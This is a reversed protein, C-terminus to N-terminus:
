KFKEITGSIIKASMEWSFRKVNNLGRNMLDTRMAEDNMVLQIKNSLDQIDFPDCYVASTRFVEPLSTVNSVIVPCGCAQAELPPIGFGEFFSPYVFLSAENYLEVLRDDSVYGTFKINEPLEDIELASFVKNKQGVIILRYDLTAFISILSVLNKRPEISGVALVYNDKQVNRNVFVDSSSGYVTTIKDSRIGYTKSIDEKVYNSDTFIHRSSKLIRPILFNYFVSFKKSFWESHHKFALDYVTVVKNNYFLPATNALNLLLPSNIRKLYMPLDIQEWLHGTRVGIVEVNLEKALDKNVINNPCVFKVDGGNLRKIKKSIEIAFRQVGTINQTLFRANIVVMM